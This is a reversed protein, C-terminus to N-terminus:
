PCWPLWLRPFVRLPLPQRWPRTKPGHGLPVLALPPPPPPLPPPAAPPVLVPVGARPRARDSGTRALRHSWSFSAHAITHFLRKNIFFHCPITSNKYRALALRRPQAASQHDGVSESESGIVIVIATASVIATAIANPRVNANPRATASETETRTKTKTENKKKKEKKKKTEIENGIATVAEIATENVIENVTAIEAGNGTAIAIATTALARPV